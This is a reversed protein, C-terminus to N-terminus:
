KLKEGQPEDTTSLLGNKELYERGDATREPFVRDERTEPDNRDPGQPPMDCFSPRTSDGSWAVMAAQSIEASVRLSLPEPTPWVDGVTLNYFGDRNDPLGFEGQAKPECKERAPAAPADLMAVADRIEANTAHVLIKDGLTGLAPEWGVCVWAGGTGRMMEAVKETVSKVKPQESM